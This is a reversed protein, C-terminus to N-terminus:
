REQQTPDLDLGNPTPQETCERSTNQPLPETSSPVRERRRPHARARSRHNPPDPPTALPRGSASTEPDARTLTAPLRRLLGPPGAVPPGPRELLAPLPPTADDLVWYSRGVTDELTPLLAAFTALYDVTVVPVFTDRGGPLAQLRDALLDLVTTAMGLTQPSERIRSDGIVTSPNVITLPVGAARARAQVVADSEV